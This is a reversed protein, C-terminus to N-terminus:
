INQLLNLWAFFFFFRQVQAQLQALLSVQLIDNACTFILYNDKTPPGNLANLPWKLPVVLTYNETTQKQEKATKRKTGKHVVLPNKKRRPAENRLQHRTTAVTHFLLLPKFTGVYPPLQGNAISPLNINRSILVTSFIILSLCSWSDGPM